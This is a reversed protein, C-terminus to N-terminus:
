DERIMTRLRRFIRSIRYRMTSGPLHFVQRLEKLDGYGSNIYDDLLRQENAPLQRVAEYVRNLLMERNWEEQPDCVREPLTKRYQLRAVRKGQEFILNQLIRCFYRTGAQPHLFVAESAIFKLCAEQFIDEATEQNFIWRRIRGMYWPRYAWIQVVLDSKSLGEGDSTKNM